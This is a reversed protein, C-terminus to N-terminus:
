IRPPPGSVGSRNRLTPETEPSSDPVDSAYPSPTTAPLSPHSPLRPGTDRMHTGVALAGDPQVVVIRRSGQRPGDRGGGQTGVPNQPRPRLELGAGWGGGDLDWDDRGRSIGLLFIGIIVLGLVIVLLTVWWTSSSSSSPKPPAYDIELTVHTHPARYASVDLQALYEMYTTEEGTVRPGTGGELIYQGSSPRVSLYHGEGNYVMWIWASNLPRDPPLGLKGMVADLTGAGSLLWKGVERLMSNQTNGPLEYISGNVRTRLQWPYVFRFDGTSPSRSTGISFSGWIIRPYALLAHTPSSGAASRIKALVAAQDGIIRGDKYMLPTLTEGREPNAGASTGEPNDTLFLAPLQNAKRWAGGSSRALVRRVAALLDDDEMDASIAVDPVAPVRRAAVPSSSMLDGTMNCFLATTAGDSWRGTRGGDLGKDVQCETAYIVIPTSM